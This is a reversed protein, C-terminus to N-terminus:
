KLAIFQRQLHFTRSISKLKNFVVVVVALYITTIWPITFFTSLRIAKFKNIM